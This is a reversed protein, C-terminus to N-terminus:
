DNEVPPTDKEPGVTFSYEMKCKPCYFVTNVLGTRADYRGILSGHVPCRVERRCESIQQSVTKEM